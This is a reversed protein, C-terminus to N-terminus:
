EGPDAGVAQVVRRPVALAQRCAPGGEDPGVADDGPPGGIGGSEGPGQVVDQM